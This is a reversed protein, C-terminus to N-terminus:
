TAIMVHTVLGVQIPTLGVANGLELLPPTLVGGVVAVEARESPTPKVIFPLAADSARIAYFGADWNAPVTFSFTPAWAPNYEDDNSFRIAWNVPKGTAGAPLPGPIGRTGHNVSFITGTIFSEWLPIRRSGLM